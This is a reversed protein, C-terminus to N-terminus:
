GRELDLYFDYRIRKTFAIANDLYAIMLTRTSPTHHFGFYNFV